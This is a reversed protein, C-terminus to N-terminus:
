NSELIYNRTFHSGLLGRWNADLNNSRHSARPIGAAQCLPSFAPFATYIQFIQSFLKLLFLFEMKRSAATGYLFSFRVM